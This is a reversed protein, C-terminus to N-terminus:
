LSCFIVRWSDDAAPDRTVTVPAPNRQDREIFYKIKRESETPQAPESHAVRFSDPAGTPLYLPANKRLQKWNFSRLQAVALKSETNETHQCALFMAFGLPEDDLTAARFLAVLLERPSAFRARPIEFDIGEDFATRNMSAPAPGADGSAAPLLELRELRESPQASGADGELTELRAIIRDVKEHLERVLTILEDSM